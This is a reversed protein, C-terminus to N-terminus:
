EVGDILERVLRLIERVERRSQLTAKTYRGHTPPRGGAGGHMRCVRRDRMAPQRCPKKSVRCRARCRPHEKLERPMPNGM